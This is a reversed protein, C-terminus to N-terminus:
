INKATHRKSDLLKWIAPLLSTAILIKIIDGPIFPLIGKAFALSPNLHLFVALWLAGLLYIILTGPFMALASTKLSRDWGRECLFGTIFAAIPFSWLYGATFGILRTFGATGGAFVPLGAAGQALYAFVALSGRKSGLAAGTLLVSLTQLTVPVTTFPLLFSIQSSISIFISFSFILAFERLLNSTRSKSLPFLRDALTFGTPQLAISM